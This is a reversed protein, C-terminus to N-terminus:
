EFVQFYIPNESYELFFKKEKLKYKRLAIKYSIQETNHLYSLTYKDTIYNAARYKNDSTQLTKTINTQPKIHRPNSTDTTTFPM